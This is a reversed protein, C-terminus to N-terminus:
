ETKAKKSVAKKKKPAPEPNLSLYNLAQHCSTRFRPDTRSKVAMWAEAHTMDPWGPLHANLLTTCDSRTM